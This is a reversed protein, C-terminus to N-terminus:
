WTKLTSTKGHQTGQKDLEGAPSRPAAFSMPSAWRRQGVATVLNMLLVLSKTEKRITM